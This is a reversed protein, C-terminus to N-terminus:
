GALTRSAAVRAVNRLATSDLWGLDNGRAWLAWSLGLLDNVSLESLCSKLLKGAAKALGAEVVGFVVRLVVVGIDVGLARREGAAARARGAGRGRRHGAGGARAGTLAVADGAGAVADLEVTTAGATAEGILLAGGILFGLLVVAHLGGAAVGHEDASLDLM